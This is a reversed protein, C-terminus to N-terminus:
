VPFTEWSLLVVEPPSPRGRKLSIAATYCPLFRVTATYLRGYGNLASRPLWFLNLRIAATKQPFCPQQGDKPAKRGRLRSPAAYHYTLHSARSTLHNHM